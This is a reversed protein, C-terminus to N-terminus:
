TVYAVPRLLISIESWTAFAGTSPWFTLSPSIRRLQVQVMTDRSGFVLFGTGILGIITSVGSSCRKNWSPSCFEFCLFASPFFERILCVGFSSSLSRMWANHCFCSLHCPQHSYGKCRGVSTSHVLDLLPLGRNVLTAPMNM